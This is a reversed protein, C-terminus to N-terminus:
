VLRQSVGVRLASTLLKNFLLREDFALSRWGALVAAHRAAEDQAAVPLLREEIWDRLPAPDSAAAPDDLLLTLTEALDGVHDYSDDVLWGPLGSEQAIWERLERTNAIRRLKGGSLLWIAWAADAPPAQKFYAVLAARKDLTATSQDLQRYLAAFRKM